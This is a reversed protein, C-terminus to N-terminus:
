TFCILSTLSVLNVRFWFCWVFIKLCIAFGFLWVMGILWNDHLRWTICCLIIKIIVLVFLFQNFLKTTFFTLLVITCNSFKFFEKIWVDKLILVKLKVPCGFFLNIVNFSMNVHIFHNSYVLILLSCVYIRIATISGFHSSAKPVVVRYKTWNCGGFGLHITWSIQFSRTSVIWSSVIRHGSVMSTITLPMTRALLM